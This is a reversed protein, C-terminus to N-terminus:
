EVQNALQNIMSKVESIRKIKDLQEPALTKPDRSKLEEIEKLKKRLNRLRKVPDFGADGGGVNGVVAKSVSKTQVVVNEEEVDSSVVTTTPAAPTKKKKPKKPKVAAKQVNNNNNISLGNMKSHIDEDGKLSQQKKKKSRMVTVWEDGGSKNNPQQHNAAPASQAVMEAESQIKSKAMARQQQKMSEWVEPTIGPPLGSNPGKGVKKAKSEYRSLSSICSCNRLFLHSM